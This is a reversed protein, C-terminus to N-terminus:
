EVVAVAVAVRVVLVGVVLVIIVVVAVLVVVVVVVVVVALKRSLNQVHISEKTLHVLGHVDNPKPRPHERKWRNPHVHHDFNPWFVKM